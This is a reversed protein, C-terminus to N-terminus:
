AAITSYMIKTQTAILISGKSRALSTQSSLIYMIISSM